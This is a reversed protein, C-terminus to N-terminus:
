SSSLVVTNLLMIQRDYFTRNNELFMEIAAETLLLRILFKLCSM